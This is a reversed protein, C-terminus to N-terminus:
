TAPLAELHQKVQQLILASADRDVVIRSMTVAGIM